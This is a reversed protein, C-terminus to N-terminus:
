ISCNTHECVCVLLREKKEFTYRWADKAAPLLPLLELRGQSRGVLQVDDGPIEVTCDHVLSRVLHLVLQIHVMCVTVITDDCGHGGKHFPGVIAIVAVYSVVKPDM